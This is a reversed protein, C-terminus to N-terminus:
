NVESMMFRELSQDTDDLHHNQFYGDIAQSRSFNDQLRTPFGAM